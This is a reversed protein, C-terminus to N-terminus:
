ENIVPSARLSVFLIGPGAHVGLSPGLRALKIKEEAIYEGLRKVLAQAEDLTTNYVVAIDQINSTNRVFDVLLDIGKARSRARGVPSLTGNKITLLPKINLITSLLAKVKGIRGGAALYKLTDLLGLLHIHPINEKVTKVVEVLNKGSQALTSALIVLQGLGMTLLQSDIIEIPCQNALERAALLASNYTGSLKSTVHISIIGDTKPALKMYIDAFDQPTPQATTPHIPDTTLRRYFEDETIDVRDRYVETGFRVYVPVVTIGLKEALEPSIDATSDTVISVTM